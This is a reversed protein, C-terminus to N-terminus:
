GGNGGPAVKAGGAPSGGPPGGGPPGGGPSIGGEPPGGGPAGGAGYSLYVPFKRHIIQNTWVLECDPSLKPFLIYPRTEFGDAQFPRQM